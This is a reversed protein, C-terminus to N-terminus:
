QGHIRCRPSRPRVQTEIGPTANRAIPLLEKRRLRPRCWERHLRKWRGPQPVTWTQLISGYFRPMRRRGPRLQRRATRIGGGRRVRGPQREREKIVEAAAGAPSAANTQNRAATSVPDIGPRASRATKATNRPHSISAAIWRMHRLKLTVTAFLAQAPSEQLTYSLTGPVSSRRPPVVASRALGRRRCSAVRRLRSWM